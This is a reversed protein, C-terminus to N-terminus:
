RGDGDPGPDLPTAEGTGSPGDSADEDTEQREVGITVQTVMAAIAGVAVLVPAFMATVATVAVGATLPVELLTTDDRKIYVRRVNGEAILQKVQELLESGSVTFEEYTSRKGRGPETSDTSQESM